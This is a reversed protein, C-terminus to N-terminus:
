FLRMQDTEPPHDNAIGLVELPALDDLTELTDILDAPM